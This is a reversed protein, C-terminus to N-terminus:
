LIHISYISHPSASLSLSIHIFIFLSMSEFPNEAYQQRGGGTKPADLGLRYSSWGSAMRNKRIFRMLRM